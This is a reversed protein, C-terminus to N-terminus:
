NIINNCIPFKVFRRPCSQRITCIIMISCIVSCLYVLSSYYALSIIKNSCVCVIYIYCFERIKSKSCSVKCNTAPNICIICCANTCNITLVISCDSFILYKNVIIWNISLPVTTCIRCFLYPCCKCIGSIPMM